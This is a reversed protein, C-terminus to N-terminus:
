VAKAHFTESIKRMEIGGAKEGSGTGESREPNHNDEM